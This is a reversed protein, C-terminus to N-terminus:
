ILEKDFDEVSKTFEDEQKKKKLLEAGGLVEDINKSQKEKMLRLEEKRAEVLRQRDEIKKQEEIKEEKTAEVRKKHLEKLDSIRVRKIDVKNLDLDEGDKLELSVKECYPDGKLIAEKRRYELYRSGPIYPKNEDNVKTKEEEFKDPYSLDEAEKIKPKEKKRGLIKKYWPIEKPEEIERTGLYFDTEPEPIHDLENGDEDLLVPKTRVMKQRRIIMAEAESIKRLNIQFFQELKKILVESNEPIRGKELLDVLLESEGMAEALQKQSLGKRRRNKMIEWHFHDILNLQEKVPLELKPNKELEKLRQERIRSEELPDRYGSLRKMREYVDVNKQKLQEIDPRKLIPINEIIACRECLMEMKGEYIVDFLRVKEQTVHCRTCKEM